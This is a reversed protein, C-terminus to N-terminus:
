DSSSRLLRLPIQSEVRAYEREAGLTRPHDPGLIRRAEDRAQRYYPLAAAPQGQLLRILGRNALAAINDPHKPGFACRIGHEYEHALEEAPEFRGRDIELLCLDRVSRLTEPDDTPLTRRRTALVTRLLPEAQALLKQKRLVVGIRRMAELTVPSDPGLVRQCTTLNTRALREAEPIRGAEDLLAALANTVRLTALAEPGLEQQDLRLAAKLQPEAKEFAGLALYVSGVKERIPAELAPQGQFDGGIRAAARDLMAVVTTQAGHPNVETSSEALMRMLYDLLKATESQAVVAQRWKWTVGAFGVVLSLALLAALAAPLPHRRCWLWTRRALGSPRAIIPEGARWRNLDDALERASAYRHGPEKELCKLCIIDLDRPVKPNDKSPSEPTADRVLDLTEVFSTGTHPARGTLVAYLVAGLGYVDTATTLAGKDGRAQEPSMYSPTGVIAGSHTLEGDGEIRRALGFDTVYPEGLEDVLINAPKLDRHLIGRQHAHDIAEAVKAVLEAAARPSSTYDSLRQNLGAGAVLKMSFYHLGRSRGVEYIPVIRSHDLHAVAEAENQFRRQEADSAFEASKIVKLAVLRDLSRQYARYVVGMGGRGLEAQVEFGAAQLAGTTPDSTERWTGREPRAKVRTALEMGLDASGELSEFLCSAVTTEETGDNAPPRDERFAADIVDVFEPFWQRYQHGGISEGAAHRFELDIALLEGFLGPRASASVDGLFALLDPRENEDRDRAQRWADEFRDCVADIQRRDALPLNTDSDSAPGPSM